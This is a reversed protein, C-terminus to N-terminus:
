KKQKYPCPVGHGDKFRQVSLSKEFSSGHFRL